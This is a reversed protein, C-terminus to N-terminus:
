VLRAPKRGFAKRKTGGEGLRIGMGGGGGGTTVAERQGCSRPTEWLPSKETVDDEKGAAATERERDAPQQKAGSPAAVGRGTRHGPGRFSSQLPQGQQAPTRACAPGWTELAVGPTRTGIAPTPKAHSVTLTSELADAGVPCQRTQM